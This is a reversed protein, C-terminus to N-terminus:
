CSGGSEENLPSSEVHVEHQKAGSSPTKDERWFGLTKRVRRFVRPAEFNKVEKESLFVFVSAGVQQM